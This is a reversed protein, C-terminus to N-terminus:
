MFNKLAFKILEETNLNKDAKALVRTTDSQSYGLSVLAAVADNFSDNQSVASIEELEESSEVASVAALKDKLELVIREATKKGVGQAASIAKVDKAAVALALKDPSLQSLISLAAKPGVGSVSLLLKFCDLEVTEKFGFLDLADEKVNLYTFLSIEDGAKGIKRLTNVTTYCRFSIGGTEIVASNLDTLLLKGKISYIM